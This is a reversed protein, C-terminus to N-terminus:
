VAVPGLEWPDTCLCVGQATRVLVEDLDSAWETLSIGGMPTEVIADIRCEAAALATVLARADRISLRKRAYIVLDLDSSAKTAPHGTALEFGTSGAPGWALGAQRLVTAAHALTGQLPLGAELSVAPWEAGPVLSEPTIVAAIDREGITMGFRQHRFGGRLGVAVSGTPAQGRRVVVHSADCTVSKAWTPAAKLVRARGAPKLRLLDHPRLPHPLPGHIDGQEVAIM